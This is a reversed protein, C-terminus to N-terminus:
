DVDLQQANDIGSGPVPGLGLLDLSLNALNANRVPQPGLYNVLESGPERFDTNREYLDGAGVGAGWVLFPIRYNELSSRGDHDDEGTAGGHDATLVVAVRGELGPDDEVAALLEGVLGDATRVAALYPASMFGHEHGAADPGSLHVFTFDYPDGALSAEVADVLSGNDELYTFRGLEAPWSRDFIEFKDKSAFLASELGAADTVTFVSAVHHGALEHVTTDSEGNITVGHGGVDAAVRRGTLMGAHNPLTVTKEVATRANLTTMGEDILRHLHPTGSPGLTTIASTNLGDLSIALVLDAPGDARAGQDHAQDHTQDHARDHARDHTQDQTDGHDDGHAGPRDEPTSDPACSVLVLCCLLTLWAAIRHM